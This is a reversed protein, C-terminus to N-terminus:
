AIMSDEYFKGSWLLDNYLIPNNWLKDHQIIFWILCAQCHLYLILQLFVKVLKIRTKIARKVNLARIVRSLRLMRILKLLSFIKFQDADAALFISAFLDVPFASLFDVTFNTKLYHAVIQKRDNITEYGVEYSTNCVVVLDLIFVIDILVNVM